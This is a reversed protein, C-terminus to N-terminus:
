HARAATAFPSQANNPCITPASALNLYRKHLEDIEEYLTSLSTTADNCLIDDAHARRQEPSAQRALIALVEQRTLGSRQMVRAIQTEQPCDVLLVRDVQKRWSEIEILLPVILIFYPGRATRAVRQCEALILPHLFDQLRQRSPEDSFVLRRMQARDLAGDSTIFNAGFTQAIWPIAAGGASTLAHAIQDTDILTVGHEAFRSAVTTKGSGIGGTLGVSFM